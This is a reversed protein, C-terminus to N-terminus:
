YCLCQIGNHIFIDSIMHVQKQKHTHTHEHASTFIAIKLRLM